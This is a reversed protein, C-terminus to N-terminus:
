PRCVSMKTSMSAPKRMSSMKHRAQTQCPNETERRRGSAPAEVPWLGALFWALAIVSAQADSLLM